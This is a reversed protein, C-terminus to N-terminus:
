YIEEFAGCRTRIMSSHTIRSTNVGMRFSKNYIVPQRRYEIPTLKNLESVQSKIDVYLINGNGKEWFLLAQNRSKNLLIAPVLDGIELNKIREESFLAANFSSAEEATMNNTFDIDIDSSDILQWSNLNLHPNKLQIKESARNWSAHLMQNVEPKEIQSMPKHINVHSKKSLANSKPPENTQAFAVATLSIISLAVLLVTSYKFKKM